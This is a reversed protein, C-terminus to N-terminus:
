MMGTLVVSYLTRHHLNSETDFFPNSISANDLTYLNKFTLMSVGLAIHNTWNDAADAADSTVENFADAAGGGLQKLQYRLGFSTGHFLSQSQVGEQAYPSAYQDREFTAQGVWDQMFYGGNVFLGSVIQYSLGVNGGYAYAQNSEGLDQGSVACTDPAKECNAQATPSSTINLSFWGGASAILGGPGIWTVGVSPGTSFLIGLARSFNSFTLSNQLGGTFLFPGLRAFNWNAGFNVDSVQTIGPQTQFQFFARDYTEFVAKTFSFNGSLTLDPLDVPTWFVSVGLTSAAAGFAADGETPVFASHRTQYSLTVQGTIPYEEKASAESPVALAGLATAAALLTLPSKLM